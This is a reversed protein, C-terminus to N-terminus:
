AYNNITLIMYNFIARTYNIITGQSNYQSSINIIDNMWYALISKIEVLTPEKSTGISKYLALGFNLFGESIDTATPNKMFYATIIDEVMKMMKNNKTTYIQTIMGQLNSPDVKSGDAAIRLMPRNIDSSSFKTCVKNIVAAMNNATGEQDALEGDDFETVNTHQTANNKVNKYYQNAINKIKSMIQSRVRRILDMYVNDAGGKKFDDAYYEVATMSDYELLGQINKLERIKYKKGLHEITYNMVDEQVGITWFKRYVIPYDTFAFMYACCKIIDDYGQQFSEAIMASLLIKHPEHLVMGDFVKSIKGYYTVENMEKYMQLLKESDIGFLEYIPKMENAGFVFTYVPGPTSLQTSHTDIFRGVFDIIADRNRAKSLVPSVIPTQLNDRFYYNIKYVDERTAEDIEDVDSLMAFEEPSNEELYDRMYQRYDSM